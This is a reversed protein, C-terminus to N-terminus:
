AMRRPASCRTAADVLAQAGLKWDYRGAVSAAAARGMTLRLQPDLALRTLATALDSEDSRALLGTEDPRVLDAPGGEAVSVVPLGSALADLVALGFSELRATHLYIDARAYRAAMEEEPVFGAFEVAEAIGLQRALEELGAREPGEGVVVGRVNAGRDISARITRLFLDVRKRPHLFNVTLVNVPERVPREVLRLDTGHPIITADLGYVRRIEGAGFSEQTLVAHAARVFRRDMLRYLSFGARMPLSMAGLRAMIADRDRYIFRPPEYCFYLCPNLRGLLRRSWYLAPLAAGFFVCVSSPDGVHRLLRLSAAYDLPANLYRNRFRDIREGTEVVHVGTANRLRSRCSEHIQHCLITVEHSEQGLHRALEIILREAGSYLKLRSFLFYFRM